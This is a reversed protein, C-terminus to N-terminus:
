VEIKNQKKWEQLQHNFFDVMAPNKEEKIKKNFYDEDLPSDSEEPQSIYVHKDETLVEDDWRKDRLWREPHVVFHLDKTNSILYNYKDILEQCTISDTIKRYYNKCKEKNIKRAKIGKWFEEFEENNRVYINKSTTNVSTTNDKVKEEIGGKVKEEGTDKVKEEMPTNVYISIIRRIIQKGEYQMQIVIYGKDKLGNITNSVTKTTVGYLDSFYKNSAWCYGEKNSLATLESYLIKAFNSINKDYRIQAPLIAYYNPKERM